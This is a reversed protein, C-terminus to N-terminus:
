EILLQQFRVEARELDVGEPDIVVDFVLDLYAVLVSLEGKIRIPASNYVFKRGNMAMTRLSLHVSQLEEGSGM